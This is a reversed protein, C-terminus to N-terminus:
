LSFQFIIIRLGLVHYYYICFENITYVFASVEFNKIDINVCHVNQMCKEFILNGPAVYINQVQSSQSLKWVVAHERGGGGIVLVNANM